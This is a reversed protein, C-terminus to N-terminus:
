FRKSKGALKAKGDRAVREQTKDICGLFNPGLHSLGACSHWRLQRGIRSLKQGVRSLQQLKDLVQARAAHARAAVRWLPVDPQFRGPAGQGRDHAEPTSEIANLYAERSLSGMGPTVAQVSTALLKPNARGFSSKLFSAQIDWAPTDQAPPHAEVNSSVHQPTEAKAPPPRGDRLALAAAFVLLLHM